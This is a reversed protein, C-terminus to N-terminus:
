DDDDWFDMEEIFEEDDEKTRTFGTGCKPCKMGKGRFRAGCVSCEHDDEEYYHPHDIRAAGGPAGTRRGTNGKGGSLLALLVVAGIVIWVISM